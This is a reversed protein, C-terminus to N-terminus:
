FPGAAPVRHAPKEAIPFGGCRTTGYRVAPLASIKGAPRIPVYDTAIGLWARAVVQAVRFVVGPIYDPDDAAEGARGPSTM